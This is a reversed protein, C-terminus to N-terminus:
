QSLEQTSMSKLIRQALQKWNDGVYPSPIFRNLADRALPYDGQQAALIGLMLYAFPQKGPKDRVVERLDTIGGLYVEKPPNRAIVERYLSFSEPIRNQMLLTLGINLRVYHLSDDMELAHYGYSVAQDYKELLFYMWGLNGYVIPLPQLKLAEEYVAAAKRVFALDYTALGDPQLHYGQNYHTNALGRLLEARILGDATSELATNFVQVSQEYDGLRSLGYGSTIRYDLDGPSMPGWRGYRQLLEAWRKDLTPLGLAQRGDRHPSGSRMSRRIQNWWERVGLKRGPNGEQRGTDMFQEWWSRQDESGTLVLMGFDTRPFLTFLALYFVALSLALGGLARLHLWRGLRRTPLGMRQWLTDAQRWEALALDWAQRDFFRNGQRYHSRAQQHLDAAPSTSEAPRVSDEAPIEGPAEMGSKPEDNM